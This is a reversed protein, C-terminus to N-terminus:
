KLFMCATCKMKSYIDLLATQAKRQYEDAATTKKGITQALHTVVVVLIMTLSKM